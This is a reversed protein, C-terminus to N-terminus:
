SGHGGEACPASWAQVLLAYLFGESAFPCRFLVNRLDPEVVSGVSLLLRKHPGRRGWGWLIPHGAAETVALVTLLEVGRAAAPGPAVGFPLPLCTTRAATGRRTGM